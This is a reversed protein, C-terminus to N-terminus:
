TYDPPMAPFNDKKNIIDYKASRYFYALHSVEAISGSETKVKHRM